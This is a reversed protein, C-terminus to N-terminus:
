IPLSSIPSQREFFLGCGDPERIGFYAFGQTSAASTPVSAGEKPAQASAQVPIPQGTVGSKALLNEMMALRSAVRSDLEKSNLEDLQRSIETLRTEFDSM